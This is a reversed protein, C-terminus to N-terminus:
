FEQDGFESKLLKSKDAPQNLQYSLGIMIIDVEYIYNTTTFFNGRSTTIRQENSQLLGMDINLWQLTLAVKGEWFSKRLTLSPNYFRSDRGQATVRESIYNFALQTSFSPSFDFSSNANISFVTNATNIDEEFLNGEIRYNFVNGGLYIKWWKVPYLTTGTEIGIARARGANTYIRNLITDNYITNVRNIVQEVDRLYVTAFASNDKWNKIVGVEALDILEPRLEADGQELTESHEREPFPTLSTTTTRNIRRSYGAKLSLGEGLDYQLNASPFLNFQQLSFTTDPRALGVQRDFYEGRIGLNYSLSGWQGNWQTYLAHISRDLEIRNTFEPNVIYENAQFDRDLYTFTGPHRLYRFQYGSEWTSTGVERSYDAQLRVGDLPNDNTNFQNQLTDAPNPYAFNTNDTPGGLVTHEYLTSLKLESGDNFSLRYDLSGILFDGRRVRLNNNYYTLSDLQEGVESVTGTQQYREWYYEPGSFDTSSVARRQQYDYLIDATRFQTRKGAYFSARLAQQKNIAYSAAVRASYNERDFSREGESPFETLVGEQYTSVYGVRRGSVDNRRYDLGASIDWQGKRMNLTMDANYRRSPEANGYPEISPLGGQINASLFVGDAAGQRTKINIIGAKGDPDYKASPATIVEIDEIANAAIQNLLTAASAQVPKGNIMITFGTAGRVTIEGAANVSISPLNRLVDAATGGQANEFQSADFVQKDLRHLSTIERATVEIESLMATNLRLPIVGFDIGKGPQAVDRYFPEYGMFQVSLFFSSGEPADLSFQGEADTVTGNLMTSDIQQYLVVSAYEVPAGSGEDVVRGTLQHPQASAVSSGALLILFSFILQYANM